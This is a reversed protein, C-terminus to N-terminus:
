AHLPLDGESELRPRSGVGGDGHGVRAGGPPCRRQQRPRRHARVGDLTREVMATVQDERSTDAEVAMVRGRYRAALERTVQTLADARSDVGVVHMGRQALEGILVM